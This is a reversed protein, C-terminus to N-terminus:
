KKLKLFIIQTPLQSNGVKTAIFLEERKIEKGIMDKYVEGVDEENLYIHAGDIHRFGSRIAFRPNRIDYLHM